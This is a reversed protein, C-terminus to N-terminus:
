GSLTASRNDPNTKPAPDAMHLRWWRRYSEVQEHITDPIVDFALQYGLRQLLDGAIAEFSTLDHTNLQNSWDRLGQTPALWSKKASKNARAKDATHFCSLMADSNPLELFDAVRRLTGSPEEVLREYRVEMYPIEPNNAADEVGRQVMRQWWLASTALPNQRWLDLRGPGKTEHAWDMLSLAVDRGDRVVHLFKARPFMQHLLPLRRVYDPTKEGSLRKGQKAGRAAYLASVFERYTSSHAAAADVAETDLDMRVFRRYNQATFKLSDDMVISEGEMIRDILQRCTKELARPIFHTDNSVTLEPHHDLM